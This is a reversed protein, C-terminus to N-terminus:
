PHTPPNQPGEGKPSELFPGEGYGRGQCLDGWVGAPQPSRTVRGRWRSPPYRGPHTSSIDRVAKLPRLVMGSSSRRAAGRERPKPSQSFRTRSERGKNKQDWHGPM